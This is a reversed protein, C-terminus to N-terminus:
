SIKNIGLELGSPKESYMEGFVKEIMYGALLKAPDRSFVKNSSNDASGLCSSLKKVIAATVCPYRKHYGRQTTRKGGIFMRICDQTDNYFEFPPIIEPHNYFDESLTDMTIDMNELFTKQKESFKIKHRQIKNDGKSSKFQIGSSKSNKSDEWLISNPELDKSKLPTIENDIVIGYRSGLRFHEETEDRYLKLNPSMPRSIGFDNLIFLKGYNPVYYNKGHVVYTWYDVNTSTKVDYYLINDAKVDYNMIQGYNQITHIAAAIQFFASYVEKPKVKPKIKFWDRLTGSALEVATIVCPQIKTEGRITLSATNCMYCDYILPLNQCVGDRILNRFMKLINVEHWSSNVTGFPVQTATPKLKSFKLAFPLHENYIKTTVAYVNGYDGSGLLRSKSKSNYKSNDSEKSNNFEETNNDSEGLNIYEDVCQDGVAMYRINKLDTRVLYRYEMREINNLYIKRLDVTINFFSITNNMYDIVFINNDMFEKSLYLVSGAKIPVINRKNLNEKPYFVFNTDTLFITIQNENLIPNNNIAYMNKDYKDDTLMVFERLVTLYSKEAININNVIPSRNEIKSLVHNTLQDGLKRDYLTYDKPAM